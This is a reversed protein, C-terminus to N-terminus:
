ENVSIKGKVLYVSDAEAVETMLGMDPNRDWKRLVARDKFVFVYIQGYSLGEKDAKKLLLTIDEGTAVVSDDVSYKVAVDCHGVNPLLIYYSPEGNLRNSLVEHMKGDFFPIQNDDRFMCGEGSLLWGKSIEPFKAVVREAVDRSIGNSGRKIRYLNEGCPLGIYRAFYNTTMEARVIVAYLREWDGTTKTM